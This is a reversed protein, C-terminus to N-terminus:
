CSGWIFLLLLGAAICANWIWDSRKVARHTAGIDKKFEDYSMM